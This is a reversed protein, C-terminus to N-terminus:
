LFLFKLQNTPKHQSRFALRTLMAWDECQLSNALSRPSVFGPSQNLINPMPRFCYMHALEKCMDVSSMFLSVGSVLVRSTLLGVQQSQEIYKGAMSKFLGFDVSAELLFICVVLGLENRGLFGTSEQRGTATDAALSCVIYIWKAKPLFAATTAIWQTKKWPFKWIWLPSSFFFDSVKPFLGPLPWTTAFDRFVWGLPLVSILSCHLDGLAIQRQGVWWVKNRGTKGWKGRGKRHAIAAYGFWCNFGGKTQTASSLHMSSM